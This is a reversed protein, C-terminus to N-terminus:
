EVVVRKVTFSNETRFIFEYLGPAFASVDVTYRMSNFQFNSINKGSVDKVQVSVNGAHANLEINLDSSAPNPYLNL